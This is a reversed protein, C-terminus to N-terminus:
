NVKLFFFFFLFFFLIFYPLVFFLFFLTFFLFIIEQTLKKDKFYMIFVKKELRKLRKKEKENIFINIPHTFFIYDNFAFIYIYIQYNLARM